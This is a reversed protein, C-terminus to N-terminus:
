LFGFEKLLEDVGFDAKVRRAFKLKGHAAKSMLCLNEVRNDSKIGNIHHVVEDVELRRGLVQEMLLRHENGVYGNGNVRGRKRKRLM